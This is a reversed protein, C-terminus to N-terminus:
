FVRWGLEDPSLGLMLRILTALLLFVFVKSADLMTSIADARVGRVVFLYLTCGAVTVVATNPCVRLSFEWWQFRAM